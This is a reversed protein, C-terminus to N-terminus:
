PIYHRGKILIAAETSEGLENTAFRDRHRGTYWSTSVNARIMVVEVTEVDDCGYEYGPVVVRADDMELAQLQVILEKVTIM